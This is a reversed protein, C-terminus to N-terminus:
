NARKRLTKTLFFSGFAVGIAMLAFGIVYFLMNNGTRPLETIGAVEITGAETIAAVTVAGGGGSSFIVHITQNSNVNVFTYSSVAGVSVGNVLVDTISAGGGPTMLYNLSQGQGIVFLGPNTISGPGETTAWINFNVSVPIPENVFNVEGEVSDSNITVTQDPALGYGAPATTERVIYTNFPLEPFTVQGSADTVQEAAVLSNDSQLYLTFGAGALLDGGPNRKTVTISGLRPELKTVTVEASASATPGYGGYEYLTWVSATNTLITGIDADKVLYTPKPTITISQGPNMLGLNRDGSWHMPDKVAAWLNVAGNNTVTITYTITDGPNATTKDAVKTISINGGYTAFLSAPLSFMVVLTVILATIILKKKM